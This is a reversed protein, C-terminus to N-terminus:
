ISLADKGPFIGKRKEAEAVLDKSFRVSFHYVCQLKTYRSAIIERRLPLWASNLQRQIRNGHARLQRLLGRPLQSPQQSRDQHTVKKLFLGAIQGSPNFRCV